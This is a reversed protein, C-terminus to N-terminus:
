MCFWTGDAGSKGNSIFGVSNNPFLEFTTDGNIANNSSATITVKNATGECIFFMKNAGTDPHDACLPMNVTVNGATPDIIYVEASTTATFTATKESISASNSKETAKLAIADAVIELGDGPTVDFHDTDWALADGAASADIQVKGAVIALGNAPDVVINDGSSTLGDGANVSLVGAAYDLGVGAASSAMIVSDGSVTLGKAANVSFVGAAIDLGAGAASTSISLEGSSMTIGDGAIGAALSIGDADISLANDNAAISLVGSSFGIGDGAM